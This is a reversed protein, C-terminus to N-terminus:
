GPLRGFEKEFEKVAYDAAAEHLIAMEVSACHAMLKETFDLDTM